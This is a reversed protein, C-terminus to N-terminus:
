RYDWYSRTEAEPPLGVDRRLWNPVAPPSGRSTPKLTLIVGSLTGFLGLDRRSTTGAHTRHDLATDYATM